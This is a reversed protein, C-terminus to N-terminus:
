NNKMKINKNKLQKIRHYCITVLMILLITVLLFIYLIHCDMQYRAKKDVSNISVTSAVNASYSKYCKSIWVM